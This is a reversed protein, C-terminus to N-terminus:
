NWFFFKIVNFAIRGLDAGAQGAEAIERDLPAESDPRSVHDGSNEDDQELHQLSRDIQDLLEDFTQPERQKRERRRKTM